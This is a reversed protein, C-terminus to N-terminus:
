RQGTQDVPILAGSSTVKLHSLIQAGETIVKPLRLTHGQLILMHAVEQPHTYHIIDTKLM